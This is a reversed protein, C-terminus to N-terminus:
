SGKASVCVHSMRAKPTVGAWWWWWGFGSGVGVGGGNGDRLMSLHRRVHVGVALLVEVLLLEVGKPLLENELVVVNRAAPKTIHKHPVATHLAAVGIAVFPAVDDIHIPVVAREAEQALVNPGTRGCQRTNHARKSEFDQLGGLGEM